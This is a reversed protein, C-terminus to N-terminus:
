SDETWVPATFWFTAGTDPVNEAWIRGGHAEVISRCIALGLGLGTTKTTYYTDFMKELNAMELGQGTDRICICIDNEPNLSSSVTIIRSGYPVSQMAEISNVVLNIIVQQLQIREARAPPLGPALMQRVATAGFRLESSVMSITESIMANTDVPAFKPARDTMFSRTRSSIETARRSDRIVRHLAAEVEILDPPSRALWRLAADSNAAVAALPQGLEHTITAAVEGLASGRAFRALQAQTERLMAESRKRGTVDRIISMLAGDPTPTTSYEVFVPAGDPRQLVATGDVVSATGFYPKSVEAQDDDLGSTFDSTPRGILDLESRDIMRCFSPNVSLVAGGSDTVIMGNWAGEFLQRYSADSRHRSRETELLRATNSSLADYLRHIEDIRQAQVATLEDIEALMEDRLGLSVLTSLSQDIISFDTLQLIESGPENNERIEPSVFLLFGNKEILAMGRLSLGGDLSTFRVPTASQACSVFDM